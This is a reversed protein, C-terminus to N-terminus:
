IPSRPPVIWVQGLLKGASNSQKAAWEMLDDPIHAAWVQSVTVVM